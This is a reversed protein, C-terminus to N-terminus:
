GLAVNNPTKKVQPWRHKLWRETAKPNQEKARRTPRQRSWGMARLLRWVHGRHYRIGSTKHIVTAIRDLTWLETSFGHAMPGQLLAKEVQRTDAKEMRPKRGARGAAKLAKTGDKLWAAHWRSATQRSVKLRRMIEAQPHGQRFLEAAQFRRAELAQFDRRPRTSTTM